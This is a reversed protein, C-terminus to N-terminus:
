RYYSDTRTKCVRAESKSASLTFLSNLNNRRQKKMSEDCYIGVPYRFDADDVYALADGATELSALYRRSM